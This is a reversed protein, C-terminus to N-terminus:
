QECFGLVSVHADGGDADAVQAQGMGDAHGVQAV